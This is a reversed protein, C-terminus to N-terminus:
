VASVANLIGGQTSKRKEKGLARREQRKLFIHELVVADAIGLGEKIHVLDRTVVMNSIQHILDFRGGNKRDKVMNETTYSVRTM